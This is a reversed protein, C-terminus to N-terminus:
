PTSHQPIHAAAACIDMGGLKYQDAPSMNSCIYRTSFELMLYQQLREVGDAKQTARITDIQAQLDQKTQAILGAPTKFQFGLGVLAVGVLWLLIRYKEIAYASKIWWSSDESRSRVYYSDEELETGAM